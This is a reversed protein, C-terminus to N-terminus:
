KPIEWLRIQTTTLLASLRRLPLRVVGPLPRHHDPLHGHAHFGM